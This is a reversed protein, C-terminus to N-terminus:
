KIYKLPETNPAPSGLQSMNLSDVQLAPFGPQNRTQFYERSLPIAVWELIGAWLIGHVSFGVPSCDIPNSPILVVSCACMCTLYMYTSFHFSEEQTSGKKM